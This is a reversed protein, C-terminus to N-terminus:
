VCIEGPIMVTVITNHNKSKIENCSMRPSENNDWSKYRICAVYENKAKDVAPLVMSIKVIDLQFIRKHHNNQILLKVGWFLVQLILICHRSFLCILWIKILLTLGASSFLHESSVSLAMILLHNGALSWQGPLWQSNLQTSLPWFNICDYGKTIEDWVDLYLNYEKLCLIKPNSVVALPCTGDDSENDNLEQLLTMM